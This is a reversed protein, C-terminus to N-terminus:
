STWFVVSSYTKSIVDLLKRAAVDDAAQSDRAVMNLPPPYFVGDVKTWVDLIVVDGEREKPISHQLVRSVLEGQPDILCVGKGTAIDDDIMRHMLSSKGTDTKGIIMTHATRAEQPLRVEAEQNNARNVGVLIGGEVKKLAAPMRVHKSDSWTVSTATFKEDPLHWLVTMEQPSLVLLWKRWDESGGKAWYNVLATLSTQKAIQENDILYTDSWEGALYNCNPSDWGGVANVVETLAGMRDLESTELTVVLLCHFLASDTKRSMIKQLHPEMDKYSPLGKIMGANLRDVLQKGANASFTRAVLSYTIQEGWEAKLFDLRRTLPQLPDFEKIRALEPLPYAYEVGLGLFAHVRYFPEEIAKQGGQQCIIETQDDFYSGIVEALVEPNYQSELDVIQWATAGERSIIQFTLGPYPGVLGSVLNYDVAIDAKREGPLAITYITSNPLSEYVQEGPLAPVSPEEVEEVKADPNAQINDLWDTAWAVMGFTGGGSLMFMFFATGADSDEGMSGFTLLWLLALGIWGARVRKEHTDLIFAIRPLRRQTLKPNDLGEPKYETPRLWFLWGVAYVMAALVGLVCGEILEDEVSKKNNSM